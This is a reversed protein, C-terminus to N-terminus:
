DLLTCQITEIIRTLECSSTLATQVLSVCFRLSEGCSSIYPFEALVKELGPGDRIDCNRFHLLDDVDGGLLQKVRNLSEESSNELNDIVVVRYRGTELLELCTHSGIYGSGGTVLVTRLEELSDSTDGGGRPTSLGLRATSTSSRRCDLGCFTSATPVGSGTFASSSATAFLLGLLLATMIPSTTGVTGVLPTIVVRMYSSCDLFRSLTRRGQQASNIVGSSFSSL